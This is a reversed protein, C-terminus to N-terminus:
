RRMWYSELIICIIGAPILIWWICLIGLIIALTNFTIMGITGYNVPLEGKKELYALYLAIILLIIGIILCTYDIPETEELHFVISEDETLHLTMYEDEYGPISLTVIYYGDNLFFAKTGSEDTSAVSVISAPKVDGPSVGHNISITCGYVPQYNYLVLVFLENKYARSTHSGRQISTATQFTYNGTSPGRTTAAHTDTATVYWTYNTNAIL